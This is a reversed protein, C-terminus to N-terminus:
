WIVIRDAPDLYMPDGEEIEFAEYFEDMNRAPQVARVQAPAHVDTAVLLELYEDTSVNRWVQAFAIFFRQQQVRQTDADEDAIEIMLADYAAQIGGMDAVNETVTLEGDVDLGPQVEISSYQDIVLANLESFADYDDQTWWSVLNGEGDFQAGSIDFAHTIEHGIIAGIAGYNSAADAEPDFYPPQLIGAPFVIENAAPNYYANVEFAAMHWASRDVPQGVQGLAANNMAVYANTATEYPSDGLEVDSYDSWSDPYGVKVVMQDLKAIAEVKTEDSMWESQEIRVRFAAMLNDIMAEIQAKSEAPFAEAVYAESFVDPFVSVSQGLALDLPHPSEDIGLLVPGIFDFAIAQMDTTLFPFASWALQSAFLYQLALPDAEALVDDLGELYQIDDVILTDVDDPLGTAVVLREWDMGPLIESLEDLTRPNNQLTPDTSLDQDPTKIRALETELDMVIQAADRAESRRYGLEVLLDATADVWEDRIDQSDSDDDLYYDESPLSLQPGTLWAATMTADNPDAAAYPAFLGFLQLNDAGEQFALGDEISSIDGIEDLVNEVPELGQDNRADRDLVQLYFSRAKGEATDPNARFSEVITFLKGGISSSVEDSAGYSPTDGPLETDEMWGGNAYLYFDDGPDVSRDMDDVQIGHRADPKTIQLSVFTAQGASATITMLASVILLARLLTKKM